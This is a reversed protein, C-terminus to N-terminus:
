SSSARLFCLKIVCRDVHNFVGIAIAGDEAPVGISDSPVIGFRRRYWEFSRPLNTVNLQLHGLRMVEPPYTTSDLAKRGGLERNGVNQLINKGTKTDVGQRDYVGSSNVLTRGMHSPIKEANQGYVAEVSFGDPDMLVVRQGGGIPDPIDEIGTVAGEEKTLAELDELSNMTFGFGLFQPPGVHVVHHFPAASVGRSYLADDTKLATKFGFDRLFEEWVAPDPSSFRVFAVDHAKALAPAKALSELQQCAIM